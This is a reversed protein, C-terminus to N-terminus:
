ASPPARESWTLLFGTSSGRLEGPPLQPIIPDPSVLVVHSDHVFLAHQHASACLLCPKVFHETTGDAHVHPACAVILLACVLVQLWLSRSYRTM